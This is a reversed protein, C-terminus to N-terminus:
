RFLPSREKFSLEGLGLVLEGRERESAIFVGEFGQKVAPAAGRPKVACPLSKATAVTWVVTGFCSGAGGVLM